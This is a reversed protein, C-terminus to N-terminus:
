NIWKNLRELKVGRYKKLEILLKNLTRVDKNDLKVGTNHNNHLRIKYHIDELEKDTIHKKIM